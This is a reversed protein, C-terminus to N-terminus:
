RKSEIYRKLENDVFEPSSYNSIDPIYKSVDKNHRILERVMSSSIHSFYRSPFMFVTQIGYCEHGIQNNIEDINKEYEFDIFSRISRIIINVGNQEAFDITLGDYWMASIRDDNKYVSKIFNVRETLSFMPEKSSNRGVGIILKDVLFLSRNVIDGHGVTFPDFTGAFLGIRKNM